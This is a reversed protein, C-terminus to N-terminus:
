NKTSFRSIEQRLDQAVTNLQEIARNIERLAGATQRSAEGLQTMAESIQEAGQSQAEMGQNVAEFRPTLSQVQEIIDAIQMGINGIDEVSRSVEKTFKDMEMVGTAVASQMEKVMQEIDLTAIATQDALRRIERSVVAFGLGYEGAKEAEIAANLSLLNTQDAVKTITAVISNINNAKQSITGLRESITSTADALQRMTAEMRALDQQGDGTATATAQVLMAVEDMTKVLEGSTVAIEKSTVVVQNTSAVQETMMAELEKGSAAIQQAVGTVGAVVSGLPRAIASSVRLGVIISFVTSLATGSSVLLILLNQADNGEKAKKALNENEKKLIEARTAEVQTMRLSQTLAKAESIKGADALRFIKESIEQNYNSEALFLELKRRIQNEKVLEDLDAYADRFQKAGEEYSQLYSKDGPFLVYGRVNRVQRSLGMVIEDVKTITDQSTDIEIQREFTNKASYYVLSGLGILCIIPISYGLFIRTKLETKNVIDLM